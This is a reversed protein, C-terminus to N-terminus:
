LQNRNQVKTRGEPIKDAEAVIRFCITALLKNKCFLKNTTMLKAFKGQVNCSKSPLDLFLWKWTWRLHFHPFVRVLVMMIGVVILLNSSSAIMFLVRPKESARLMEHSFCGSTFIQPHHFYRNLPSCFRQRSRYFYSNWAYSKDECSKREPRNLTKFITQRTKNRHCQLYAGFPIRKNMWQKPGNLLILNLKRTFTSTQTLLIEDKIRNRSVFDRGRLWGRTFYELCTLGAVQRLKWHWCVSGQSRLARCNSRAQRHPIKHFEMRNGTAEGEDFVSVHSTCQPRQCRDSFLHYLDLKKNDFM